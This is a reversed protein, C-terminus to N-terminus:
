RGRRSRQTITGHELGELLRIQALAKTKTTHKSRVGHPSTVQYGGDRRTITYPM